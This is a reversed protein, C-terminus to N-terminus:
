FLGAMPDRQRDVSKLWGTLACRERQPALVEHWIKSSFFCAFVGMRPLISAMVKEREVPDYLLLEGGDNAQWEPNLFLVVTFQRSDDSKFQDLHKRYYTQPPYIAFHAEFSNLPLFFRQSVKDRLQRIISLYSAIPDQTAHCDLWDVHDGRITDVTQQHEKQGIAAKHFFGEDKRVMMESYLNQCLILPFLDNVVAWGQNELQDAIHDIPTNM